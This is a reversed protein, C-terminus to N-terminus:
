ESRFEGAVVAEAFVTLEEETFFMPRQNPRKSDRLLYGGETRAVEVCAGSSCRSSKRWVPQGTSNM